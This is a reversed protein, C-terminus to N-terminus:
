RIGLDLRFVVRRYRGSPVDVRRPTVSGARAGSPVTVVYRGPRLRIRYSGEASTRTRAVHGGRAFVLRVHPAPKTCPRGIECVPYAPDLLVVGTLGSRPTAGAALAPLAVAVLATVFLKM